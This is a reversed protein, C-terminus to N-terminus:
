YNKERQGYMQTYKGVPLVRKMVLRWTDCKSRLNCNISKACFCPFPYILVQLVSYCFDLTVRNDSSVLVQRLGSQGPRPTRHFRVPWIGWNLPEM